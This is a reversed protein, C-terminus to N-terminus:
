QISLEQVFNVCAYEKIRWYVLNVELIIKRQDFNKEFAKLEHNQHMRLFKDNKDKKICVQSYTYM